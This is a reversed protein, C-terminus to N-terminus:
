ISMRHDTQGHPSSECPFDGHNVCCLRGDRGADEKAPGLHALTGPPRITEADSMDDQDEYGIEPRPSDGAVEEDEESITSLRHPHPFSTIPVIIAEEGDDDNERPPSDSRTNRFTVEIVSSVLRGAKIIQMSSPLSVPEFARYEDPLNTTPKPSSWSPEDATEEEVNESDLDSDYADDSDERAFPNVFDLSDWDSVSALSSSSTPYHQFPLEYFDADETAFWDQIAVNTLVESASATSPVFYPQPNVATIQPEAGSLQKVAPSIASPHCEIRRSLHRRSLPAGPPGDSDPSPFAPVQGDGDFSPDSAEEPRKPARGTVFRATARSCFRRLRAWKFGNGRLLVRVRLAASTSNRVAGKQSAIMSTPRKPRLSTVLVAPLTPFM